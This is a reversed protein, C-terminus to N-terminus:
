MTSIELIKTLLLNKTKPFEPSKNVRQVSDPADNKTTTRPLPIILFHFMKVGRKKYNRGDIEFRNVGDQFPDNKLVFAFNESFSVNKGGSVCM